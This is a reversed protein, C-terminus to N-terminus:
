LQSINPYTTINPDTQTPRSTNLKTFVLGPVWALEFESSQPNTQLQHPDSGKFLDAHASLVVVAGQSPTKTVPLEM